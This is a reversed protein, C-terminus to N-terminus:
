AVRAKAEDPPHGPGVPPSGMGLRVFLWPALFTMWLGLIAYRVIQPAIAEPFIPKTVIRLGFFIAYGIALKIVQRALAQREYFRVRESELVVGLSAGVLYGIMKYAEPSRDLALLALPLLSLALRTSTAWTKGAAWRQVYAGAAVALIGLALGGIVDLPWHVGLYLRSYSILFVLVVALAWVRRTGSWRAITGWFAASVQAHGSPFGPGTGSEPYVVRVPADVQYPRPLQLAEKVWVNVFNTLLVIASLWWGYRKSVAWYVLPLALVYFEERGLDTIRSFLQDLLPSHIAQLAQIIGIQADM